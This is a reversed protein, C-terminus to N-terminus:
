PTQRPAPCRGQNSRIFPFIYMSQCKGNPQEVRGDTFTIDIKKLKKKDLPNMKSEKNLHFIYIYENRKYNKIFHM